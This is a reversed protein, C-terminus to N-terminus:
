VDDDESSRQRPAEALFLFAVFALLGGFVLGRLANFLGFFDGAALEGPITALKPLGGVVLSMGVFGLVAGFLRNM